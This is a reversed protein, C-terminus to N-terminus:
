LRRRKKDHPYEEQNELLDNEELPCSSLPPINLNNSDIASSQFNGFTIDVDPDELNSKLEEMFKEIEEEDEIYLQQESMPNGESDVFYPMDSSPEM